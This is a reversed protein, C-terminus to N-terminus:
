QVTDDDAPLNLLVSNVTVNEGDVQVKRMVMGSTTINVAFLVVLSHSLILYFSVYTVM